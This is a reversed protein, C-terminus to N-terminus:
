VFFLLSARKNKAKRYFENAGKLENKTYLYDGVYVEYWEM